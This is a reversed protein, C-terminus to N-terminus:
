AAAMTPVSEFGCNACRETSGDDWVIFDGVDMSRGQDNMVEIDQNETWSSNINQLAMWVQEANGAQMSAAPKFMWRNNVIDGDKAALYRTGLDGDWGHKNIEDVQDSTLTLFFVTALM